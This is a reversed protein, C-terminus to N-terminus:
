NELNQVLKTKTSFGEILYLGGIYMYISLKEIFGGCIVHERFLSQLKLTSEDPHHGRLRLDRGGCDLPIMLRDLHYISELSM